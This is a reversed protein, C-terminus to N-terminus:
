LFMNSMEIRNLTDSTSSLSIGIFIVAIATLLLKEPLTRQNWCAMWGSNCNGPVTAIESDTTEIDVSKNSTMETQIIQLQQEGQWDIQFYNSLEVKVLRGTCIYILNFFTLSSFLLNNLDGPCLPNKQKKNKGM